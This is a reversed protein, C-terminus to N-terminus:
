LGVVRQHGIGVGGVDRIPDRRSSFRPHRFQDFGEGASRVSGTRTSSFWAVQTSTAPVYVITGNEAVALAGRGQVVTVAIEDSAPTASGTVELRKLDFPATYLRGARTFVLHGSSLYHPDSGELLRKRTGASCISSSSRPHRAQKFSPLCCPGGEPCRTPVQHAEGGDSGLRTLESPTGGMADVKFLGGSWAHFM